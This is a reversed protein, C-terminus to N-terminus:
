GLGSILVRGSVCSCSVRSGEADWCGAGLVWGTGVWRGGVLVSSSPPTPPASRGTEHPLATCSFCPAEAPLM